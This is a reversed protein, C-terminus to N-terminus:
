NSPEVTGVPLTVLVGDKNQYTVDKMRVRLKYLSPRGTAQDYVRIELDSQPTKWVAPYEDKGFECLEPITYEFGRVSGNEILNGHGATSERRGPVFEWHDDLIVVHLPSDIRFSYRIITRVDAPKGSVMGPAFRWRSGITDIASQDLDHDLSGIVRIKDVSGDKRVIAHVIVDGEINRRKAEEPYPPEPSELLLPPTAGKEGITPKTSDPMRIFAKPMSPTAIEKLKTTFESLPMKQNEAAFHLDTISGIVNGDRVELGRPGCSPITYGQPGDNLVLIWETNIAYEPIHSFSREFGGMLVSLRKTPITGKLVEHVEIDMSSYIQESMKKILERMEIDMSSYVTDTAKENYSLIKAYVIVSRSGDAAVMFPGGWMCSGALHSGPSLAMFSVCLMVVTVFIKHKAIATM